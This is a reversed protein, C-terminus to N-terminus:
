MMGVTVTHSFYIDIIVFLFKHGKFYIHRSQMDLLQDSTDPFVTNLVVFCGILENYCTEIYTTFNKFNGHSNLKLTFLILNIQVFVCSDQTFSLLYKISIHEIEVEGPM